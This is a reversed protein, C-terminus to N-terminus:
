PSAPPSPATSSSIVASPASSEEQLVATPSSMPASAREALRTCIAAFMAPYYAVSLLSFVGVEMLAFIGIHIAVGVVAFIVRTRPKVLAVFFFCEWVITVVSMIAAPVVLWGDTAEILGPSRAWQPSQLIQYLASFGDFPTWATSVLKQIGTATYVVVIQVLLLKRPWAPIPTHDFLRRTRLWCDLSMTATCDALLLLFLANGLLSDGGGSVDSNQSFVIKTAVAVVLIPARGFLGVLMLVSGVLATRLLNMVVAETPGGLLRIAPTGVMSRYGGSEDDCFSFRVIERGAETFVFPVLLVLLSLAIGIRVAAVCAGNETADTHARITRWLRAFRAKM